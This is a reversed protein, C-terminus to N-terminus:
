RRVLWKRGEEPALLLVPFPMLWLWAELPVSATGFFENGWPTYAIM